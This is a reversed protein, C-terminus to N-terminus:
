KYIWLGIIDNRSGQVSACELNDESFRVTIKKNATLATLATAYFREFQAESLQNKAKWISISENSKTNIAQMWIMEKTSNSEVDVYIGKIDLVCESYAFINQSFCLLVTFILKKM